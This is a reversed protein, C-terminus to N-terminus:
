VVHEAAKYNLCFFLLFKAKTKTSKCFDIQAMILTSIFFITSFITTFINPLILAGANPLWQYVYVVNKNLYSVFFAYFM